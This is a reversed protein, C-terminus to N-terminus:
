FLFRAAGVIALDLLVAVAGQQDLRRLHGDWFLIFLLISIGSSAIVVPDGWIRALAVGVAGFVFGAASLICLAGAVWRRRRAALLRSFAWSDIPWALGPQLIFLQASQGFYLLHVLGHLALFLSLLIRVM